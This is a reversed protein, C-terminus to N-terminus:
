TGYDILRKVKQVFIDLITSFEFSKDFFFIHLITFADGQTPSAQM